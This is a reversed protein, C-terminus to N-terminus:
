LYLMFFLPVEVNELSKEMIFIRVIWLYLFALLPKEINYLFVNYFSLTEMVSM